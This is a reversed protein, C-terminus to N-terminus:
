RLISPNLPNVYQFFLYLPCNILRSSQLRTTKLMLIQTAQSPKDESNNSILYLDDVYINGSEKCVNVSLLTDETLKEELSFVSELKDKKRLTKQSKLM